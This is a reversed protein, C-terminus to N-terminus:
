DFASVWDDILRAVEAPHSRPSWHGADLSSCELTPIRHELDRMAAASVYRDREAVIAHVPIGVPRVNPRALRAAINTRYLPVTAVADRSLQRGPYGETGETRELWRRFVRDAGLRWPVTRVLPLSLAATYWSRALQRSALRAAARDHRARRVLEGLHDLSPGSLTTFSDVHRAFAPTMVYEWGIVGGWDHGVLHVTHDTRISRVVSDVHAALLELRFPRDGSPLPADGAGPLDITVLHFRDRLHPVVLDWVAASDPWGHLLVITPADGPRRGHHHTALAGPQPTDRRGETMLPM